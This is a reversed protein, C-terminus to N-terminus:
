LHGFFLMGVNASFREEGTIDRYIGWFAKADADVEDQMEENKELHKLQHHALEHLMCFAIGYSYVSNTRESYRSKMNIKNLAEIDIDLRRDRISEALMYEVGLQDWFDPTLLEPVIKLYDLYREIDPKLWDPVFPLVQEKQKKNTDEVSQLFAELSIGYYICSAAIVRRDLIKLVVDCLLWFYQCYASSLYVQSSKGDESMEISAVESVHSGKDTLEVENKLGTKVSDLIDVSIVKKLFGTINMNLSHVPYLAEEM